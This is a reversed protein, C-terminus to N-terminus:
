EYLFENISSPLTRAPPGKKTERRQDHPHRAFDTPEKAFNWPQKAFDLAQKAFVPPRQHEEVGIHLGM